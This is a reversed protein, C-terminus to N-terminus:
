PKGWAETGSKSTGEVICAAASPSDFKYDEMFEFFGRKNKVLIQTEILKDRLKVHGEQLSPNVYGAAESGKLVCFSPRPESPNVYYGRASQSFSNRRIDPKTDVELLKSLAIYDNYQLVVTTPTGNKDYNIVIPDVANQSNNSM